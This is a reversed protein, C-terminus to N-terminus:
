PPTCQCTDRGQLGLGGWASVRCGAPIDRRGTLEVVEAHNVSEVEEEERVGEWSWM